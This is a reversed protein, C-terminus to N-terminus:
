ATGVVVQSVRRSVAAREVTVSQVLQECADTVSSPEYGTIARFTFAKMDFSVALLSAMFSRGIREGEAKHGPGLAWEIAARLDEERQVLRVTPLANFINHRGFTIVPKGMTAAEIGVTGSITIVAAARRVVEIGPEYPDVLIVNKLASIQDYFNDPRRGIAPLHEKVALFVGAPLDRSVSVISTLQYPYEPARGQFLIEPEVHLPYFVFRKGELDKLSMSKGGTLRRHDRWRRWIVGLHDRYYYQRGKHYGTLRWMSYDRTIRAADLITGALGFRKNLEGIIMRGQYSLGIPVESTSVHQGSLYAQEIQVSDGYEDTTWYYFNKHRSPHLNRAFAGNGKAVVTQLGNGEFLMTPRATRFVEDWYAFARNYTAVASYYDSTESQVSRPHHFGGLSYGRGYQRDPVMMWNYTRGYRREFGLAQNITADRDHVTAPSNAAFSPCVEVSDYVSGGPVQTFLDKAAETAVYLRVTSGFREKLRAGLDAYFHRYWPNGVVAITRFADREMM